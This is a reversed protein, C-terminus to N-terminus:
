VTDNGGVPRKLCIHIEVLHPIEPQTSGVRESIYLAPNRLITGSNWVGFPLDVKAELLVEPVVVIEELRADEVLM